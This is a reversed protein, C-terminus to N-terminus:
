SMSVMTEFQDGRNIGLYRSVPGLGHTPYLNGDEKTHPFRRWLGENADETLIKRLDHIYAAEAHTLDGFLGARVMNLVLLENYGYCDNELMICHRRTRESTDVLEWCEALTGAAPVGVGAHKGNKM